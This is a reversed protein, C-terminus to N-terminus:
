HNQVKREKTWGGSETSGCACAREGSIWDVRVRENVASENVRMGVCVSTWVWESTWESMSAEGEMWVKVIAGAALWECQSVEEKNVDMTHSRYSLAKPRLSPPPPTLTHLYSGISIEIRSFIFHAHLPFINMCNESWTVSGGGGKEGGWTSFSSSKFFVLIFPSMIITQTLIQFYNSYLSYSGAYITNCLTHFPLILMYIRIQM